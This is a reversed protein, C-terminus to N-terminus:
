VTSHANSDTGIIIDCDGRKLILEKFEPPFDMININFYISVLYTLRNNLKAQCVVIDHACYQPCRSSTIGKTVLAPGAPSRQSATSFTM